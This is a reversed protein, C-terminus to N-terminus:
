AVLELIRDFRFNIVLERLQKNLESRDDPLQDLLELLRDDSGQAAANQIQQRWDASQAALPEILDRGPNQALPTPTYSTFSPRDAAAIYPQSRDGLPTSGITIKLHHCLM